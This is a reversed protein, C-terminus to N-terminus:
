FKLDYMYLIGTSFNTITSAPIESVAISKVNLRTADRAAYFTSDIEVTDFIRSYDNLFNTLYRRPIGAGGGM